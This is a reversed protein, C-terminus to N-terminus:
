GRIRCDGPLSCLGNEITSRGARRGDGGATVTSEGRDGGFARLGRNAAKDIELDGCSLPCDHEGPAEGILILALDDNSTGVVVGSEKSGDLAADCNVLLGLAELAGGGTFRMPLGFIGGVSRTFVLVEVSSKDRFKLSLTMDGNLVGGLLESLVGLSNPILGGAM